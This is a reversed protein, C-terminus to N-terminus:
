ALLGEPLDVTIVRANTNIDKVVEKTAPILVPKETGPPQVVYVDNSGTELISDVTGIEKGEVTNVTSGILQHHYYTGEPLVPLDEENAEVLTGRLNEAQEVSEVVDVKVVM